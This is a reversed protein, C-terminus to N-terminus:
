PCGAPQVVTGDPASSYHATLQFHQSLDTGGDSTGLYGNSTESFAPSAVLGTAVQMQADSALLANGQTVGSEGLPANLLPNNM